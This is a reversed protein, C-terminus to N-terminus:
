DIFGQFHALIASPEANPDTSAVLYLDQNDSWQVVVYEKEPCLYITMAVPLTAEKNYSSGHIVLITSAESNESIYAYCSVPQGEQSVYNFAEPLTISLSSIQVSGSLDPENPITGNLTFTVTDLTADGNQTLTGHLAWDIQKESLIKGTSENPTEGGTCSALCFLISILLLVIFFRRM